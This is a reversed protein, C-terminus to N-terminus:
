VSRTIRGVPWPNEPWRKEARGAMPRTSFGLGPPRTHASSPAPATTPSVARADVLGARVDRALRPLGRVGRALGAADSAADRAGEADGGQGGAAGGAGRAGGACVACATSSNARPRWRSRARPRSIIRDVVTSQRDGRLVAYCRM